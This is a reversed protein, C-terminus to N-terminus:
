VPSSLEFIETDGRKRKPSVKIGRSKLVESILDIDWPKENMEIPAKFSNSFLILTKQGIRVCEEFLPVALREPLSRWYDTVVVTGAQRDALSSVVGVALNTELAPYRFRAVALSMEDPDIAWRCNLKDALEGTGCGVLFVPYSIMSGIEEVFENAYGPTLKQRAFSRFQDVQEAFDDIDLVTLLETELNPFKEFLRRQNGAWHDRSVNEHPVHVTISSPQIQIEIGDRILRYALEIDEVGWGDFSEDFGGVRLLVSRPMSINNGWYQMWMRKLRETSVGEARLWSGLRPDRLNQREVEEWLPVELSEPVHWVTQGMVLSPRPALGHSVLHFVLADPHVIVGSDIFVVIEGAALKIGMNRAAAVRFGRDPQYCYRISLIESMEKAVDFTADHSGDDCVIIEVSDRVRDVAAVLSTLTQSLLEARDYTPVIVSIRPSESFRDTLLTPASATM